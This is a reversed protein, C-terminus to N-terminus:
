VDAGVLQTIEQLNRLVVLVPEMSFTFIRYILLTAGLLCGIFTLEKEEGEWHVKSM